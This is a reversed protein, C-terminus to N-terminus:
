HLPRPTLPALSGSRESETEEARLTAIFFVGAAILPWICIRAMFWGHRATHDPFMVFWAPVALMALVYLVANANRTRLLATLATLAGIAIVVFALWKEGDFLRYISGRLGNVAM